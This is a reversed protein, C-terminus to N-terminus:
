RLLRSWSHWKVEGDCRKSDACNSDGDLVAGGDAGPVGFLKSSKFIAFVYSGNKGCFIWRCDSRLLRFFRVKKKCLRDLVIKSLILRHGYKGHFSSCVNKPCSRKPIVFFFCAFRNQNMSKQFRLKKWRRRIKASESHAKGNPKRTLVGTKMM